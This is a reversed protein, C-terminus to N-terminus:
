DKYCFLMYVDEVPIYGQATYFARLSYNDYPTAMHIVSVEKKRCWEEFIYYLEKGIYGRHQPTVYWMIELANKEKFFPFEQVTGILIGILTGDLYACLAIHNPDEIAKIIFGILKHTDVTMDKLHSVPHFELLLNRINDTDQVTAERIHYPLLPAPELPKFLDTIYKYLQM